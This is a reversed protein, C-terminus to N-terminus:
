RCLENSGKKKIVVQKPPKMGIVELYSGNTFSYMPDRVDICLYPIGKDVVKSSPPFARDYVSRGDRQWVWAMDFVYDLDRAFVIPLDFKGYGVPCPDYVTNCPPTPDKDIVLKFSRQPVDVSEVYEAYGNSGFLMWAVLYKCFKM